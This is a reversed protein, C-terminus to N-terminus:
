EHSLFCGHVTVNQKKNLDAVSSKMSSKNWLFGKALGSASQMDNFSGRPKHRAIWAKKYQENQHDVDYCAISVIMCM